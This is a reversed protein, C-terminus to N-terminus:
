AGGGAAGGDRPVFAGLLWFAVCPDAGEVVSKTRIWPYVFSLDLTEETGADPSLSGLDTWTELDPSEQVTVTGVAVSSGFGQGQWAVLIARGFKTVDMPASYVPTTGILPTYRPLLVILETPADGPM